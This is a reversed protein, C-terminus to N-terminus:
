VDDCGGAVRALGSAADVREMFSPDAIDHAWMVLADESNDSYYAPRVGSPAFGFRGYLGRAALNSVRVELTLAVLGLGVARRCLEGLLLSGVGSGQCSPHVAVTAVHGEDAVVILGAHGVVDGGAEAVVHFRGEAGIVQDRFFDTSWPKVFVMEDISSVADLDDGVMPRVLAPSGAAVISM